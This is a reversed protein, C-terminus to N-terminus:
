EGDGNNPTSFGIQTTQRTAYLEFVFTTLGPHSHTEPLKEGIVRCRRLVM